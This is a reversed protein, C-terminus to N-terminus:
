YEHVDEENVEGSYLKLQLLKFKIQLENYKKQLLVNILRNKELVNLMEDFQNKQHVIISLLLQNNETSNFQKDSTDAANQASRWTGLYRCIDSNSGRKYGLRILSEGITYYTIKSGNKAMSDCVQWVEQEKKSIPSRRM